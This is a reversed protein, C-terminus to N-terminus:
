FNCQNEELCLKASESATSGPFENVLMKLVSNREETKGQVHYGVGIGFYAESRIEADPKRKILEDLIQKGEAFQKMYVQTLFGERYMAFQAMRNKPYREYFKRYLEKAEGYKGQAEMQAAKQYDSTDLPPLVAKAVKTLEQAKVEIQMSLTERDEHKFLITYKGAPIDELSKPCFGIEILQTGKEKNEFFIKADGPDCELIDLKGNKVFIEEEAYKAVEETAKKIEKIDTWEIINEVIPLNTKVSVIQYKLSKVDGDVSLTSVLIHTVGRANFGSSSVDVLGQMELKKENLIDNVRSNEVIVFKGNGGLATALISNLMPTVNVKQAAANGFKVDQIAVRYKGDLEKSDDLLVGSGSNTKKLQGALESALDKLTEELSKSRDFKSFYVTWTNQRVARINVLFQEGEKHVEGFVFLDIGRRADPDIADCSMLGMQCKKMQENISTMSDKRRVTFDKNNSLESEFLNSAINGDIGDGVTFNSIGVTVAALPFYASFLFVLSLKIINKMIKDDM